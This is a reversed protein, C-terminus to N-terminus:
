RPSLARLPLCDLHSLHIMHSKCAFLGCFEGGMLAIFLACGTILLYWGRRKWKGFADLADKSLRGIHRAFPLIDFLGGLISVGAVVVAILAAHVTTADTQGRDQLVMLVGVLIIKFWVKPLTGLCTRTLFRYSRNKPSFSGVIWAKGRMDQVAKKFGGLLSTSNEGSNQEKMNRENQKQDKHTIKDVVEGCISSVLLLNAVDTATYLHFWFAANKQDAKHAMPDSLRKHMAWGAQDATEAGMNMGTQLTIWARRISRMFFFMRGIYDVLLCVLLIMPLSVGSLWREWAAAQCRALWVDESAQGWARFGTGIALAGSTLELYTPLTTTYIHMWRPWGVLRLGCLPLQYWDHMYPCIHKLAEYRNLFALMSSFLGWKLCGIVVYGCVQLIYGYMIKGDYGFRFALPVLMFEMFGSLTIIILLRKAVEEPSADRNKGLVVRKM